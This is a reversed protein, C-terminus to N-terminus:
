RNQGSFKICLSWNTYQQQQQSSTSGFFFVINNTKHILFIQTAFSDQVFLCYIMDANASQQAFLLTISALTRCGKVIHPDGTGIWGCFVVALEMGTGRLRQSFVIMCPKKRWFVDAFWTSLSHSHPHSFFFIYVYYIYYYILHRM